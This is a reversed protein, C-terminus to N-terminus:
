PPTAGLLRKSNSDPSSSGSQLPLKVSQPPKRETPSSNGAAALPPLPPLWNNPNNKPDYPINEQVQKWIKDWDWLEHEFIEEEEEKKPLAPQQPAVPLRPKRAKRPAPYKPVEHVMPEGKYEFDAHRSNKAAMHLARLILQARRYDITNRVLANIIEMLSAQISKPDDLIAM